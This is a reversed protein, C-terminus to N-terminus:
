SLQCRSVAPTAVLGDILLEKAATVGANGPRGNIAFFTEGGFLNREGLLIM